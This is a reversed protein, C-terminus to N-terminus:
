MDLCRQKIEVIRFQLSKRKKERRDWYIAALIGVFFGVLGGAAPIGGQAGPVLVSVLIYGLFFLAFPLLYVMSAAALVKATESELTVVDGSRAGLGNQAMVVTEGTIVQTCGACDACDHGCATKRKIQVQALGNDAVTRVTAVQQM